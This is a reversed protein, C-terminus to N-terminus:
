QERVIDGVGLPIVIETLGWNSFIDLFEEYNREVKTYLKPKLFTALCM